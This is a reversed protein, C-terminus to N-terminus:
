NTPDKSKMREKFLFSCSRFGKKRVKIADIEIYRDPLELFMREDSLLKEIEKQTMKGHIFFLRLVDEVFSDYTKVIERTLKQPLDEKKKIM